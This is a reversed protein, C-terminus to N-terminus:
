VNTVLWHFLIGFESKNMDGDTVGVTLSGTCLLVGQSLLLKHGNHLRDFTGGLCIHEYIKCHEDGGNNSKVDSPLKVPLSKTSINSLLSDPFAQLAYSVAREHLSADEVGALLVVDCAQKLRYPSSPQCGEVSFNNLLLRVDTKRAYKTTSIYVETVLQKIGTTTPIHPEPMDSHTAQLCGDPAIHIYLCDSVHQLASDLISAINSSIVPLRNSLLLLGCRFM